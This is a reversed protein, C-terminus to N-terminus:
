EETCYIWPCYWFIYKRSFILPWSGSKYICRVHATSVSVICNTKVAIDSMIISMFRRWPLINQANIKIYVFIWFYDTINKTQSLKIKRKSFLTKHFIKYYWNILPVIPITEKNDDLLVDNLSFLCSNPNSQKSQYFFVCLVKRSSNIKVLWCYM